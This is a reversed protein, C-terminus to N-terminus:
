RKFITNIRYKEQQLMNNLEAIEKRIDTEKNQLDERTQQQAHSLTILGM